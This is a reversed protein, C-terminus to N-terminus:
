TGKILWKFFRYTFYATGCTIILGVACMIVILGWIIYERSEPWIVAARFAGRLINYAIILSMITYMVFVLTKNFRDKFTMM